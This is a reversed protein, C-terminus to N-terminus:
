IKKWKRRNEIEPAALELKEAFYAPFAPLASGAARRGACIHGHQMVPAM